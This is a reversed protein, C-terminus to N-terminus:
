KEFEILKYNTILDLNLMSESKVFQIYDYFQARM